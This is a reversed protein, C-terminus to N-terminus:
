DWIGPIGSINCFFILYYKIKSCVEVFHSISFLALPLMHQFILEFLSHKQINNQLLCKMHWVKAKKIWPSFFMKPERTSDRFLEVKSYDGNKGSIIICNIKRCKSRILKYFSHFILYKTSDILSSSIM